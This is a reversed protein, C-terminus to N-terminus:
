VNATEQHRRGAEYALELMAEVQTLGLTVVVVLSTYGASQTILKLQDIKSQIRDFEEIYTMKM